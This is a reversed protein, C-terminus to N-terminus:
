GRLEQIALKFEEDNPAKGHWSAKNEIFSIGKGKITRAIIAVPMSKEQGMIVSKELAESIEQYDHGDIEIVQWGFSEWKKAVPEVSMVCETNGDIQLCNRDVIATLNGLKYHASSMAAEWIQGEQLEGDGLLAYVRSSKNDLKLALAMGNAMSLGQGLSGTCVEVGPIKGFVPHGQLRSNLARFTPLQCSL